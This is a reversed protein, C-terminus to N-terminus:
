EGTALRIQLLQLTGYQVKADHSLAELAVLSEDQSQHITSLIM